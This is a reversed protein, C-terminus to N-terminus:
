RIIAGIIDNYFTKFGGHGMNKITTYKGTFNNQLIEKSGFIFKTQSSYKRPDIFNTVGFYLTDFAGILSINPNNFGRTKSKKNETVKSIKKYALDIVFKSLIKNKRIFEFVKRNKLFLKILYPTEKELGEMTPSVLIIKNKLKYKEVIHLVTQCGLSFGLLTYDTLKLHKIVTFVIDSLTYKNPLSILETSGYYGPYKITIVKLYKSLKNIFKTENDFNHLWGSVLVISTKNKNGYTNYEIEFNNNKLKM